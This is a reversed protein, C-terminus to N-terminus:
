FLLEIDEKKKKGQADVPLTEPFRWRKPIVLNEFFRSLYEHWFSNIQHKELGAFKERGKENFVIAAALYQRKGELAIVCVDSAFGSEMIRDEIEPLSIRKAEIKVVSDVRGKLLFRGDDLIEVVDATQFGSTDKIYPSRIILCGDENTSIQANDFVTWEPGKDSQRWAIGSTETSGYVELPWFGFVECTRKATEFNLVGGSTFIWPSRLCLSSSSEIEVARKLFAPVTIIMYEADSFKELEEPVQIRQRRFPIGATFPLLISFLFGFIHHQSVTSCLKRKFFEEGWKSLIFGNDTEFEKLRQTVAKPKGTSGSTFMIISTEEAKIVPWEGKVKAHTELVTELLAPIYFTNEPREGESFVQDTLFPAGERIEALYAPSINASLLIKKKCQLLGTLALLFFWCDECNLLWCGSNVKEIQARLRATGEIFDGWTKYVGDGFTGEYCMVTSPDRSNEKFATLPIAKPMNKQVKKRVLFEVGFLTGILIYSVGGNYGSWLADSGSLITLLAMAGNFVFFLVWVITVKRCYEAIRKEGMSKPISKDALVAFRYIMPPGQFLTLGFAFLFLVNMLVPYLKLIVLSNTLLCLVGIGL